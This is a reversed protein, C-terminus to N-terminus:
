EPDGGPGYGPMGVMGAEADAVGTEYGRRYSDQIEASLREIEDASDYLLAALNQQRNRHAYNAELRLREAHSM